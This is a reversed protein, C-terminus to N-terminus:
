VTVTTSRDCVFDFVILWGFECIWDFLCALSWRKKQLLEAGGSQMPSTDTSQQDLDRM